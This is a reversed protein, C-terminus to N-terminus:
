GVPAPGGAFLFNILYFVDAVDADGDGDVDGPVPLTSFRQGFVGYGSGDDSGAWVVVFGGPHGAIRADFQRGTTHTNVRLESGLLTGLADYRRLLIETTDSPAATYADFVAIFGGDPLALVRPADHSSSTTSLVLDATAALGSAAYVRAEHGSSDEWTVV